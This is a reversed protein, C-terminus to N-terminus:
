AAPDAVPVLVQVPTLVDPVGLVSQRNSQEVLGLFQMAHLEPQEVVRSVVVPQGAPERDDIQVQILSSAGIHQQSFVNGM